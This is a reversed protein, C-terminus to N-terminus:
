LVEELAKLIRETIERITGTSVDVTIDSYKEYLPIREALISKIKEMKDGGELLPRSNDNKLNNYIREPSSKLYLVIGTKKFNLINQPNKIVGGGTSIVKGGTQALEVVTQAELNRFYQEGKIEFIKSISCGEKKEIFKDMDIFSINKLKSIKKGFTTKGCGMFGIIIINKESSM